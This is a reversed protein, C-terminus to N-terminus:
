QNAGVRDIWAKLGEIVKRCQPVTLFEPDTSAAGTAAMRACFARLASKTPSDLAGLRKLEGWLAHIKRVDPKDSKRFGASDQFGKAKMENVLDVLKATTADKSSTKGTVRLVLARYTEDDLGLQAKAIHIKAILSKRDPDSVFAM